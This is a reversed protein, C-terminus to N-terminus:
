SGDSPGKHKITRQKAISLTLPAGAGIQDLGFNLLHADVLYEQADIYNAAIRYGEIKDDPHAMQAMKRLLANAATLQALEDMELLVPQYGAQMMMRSLKRTRKEVASTKLLDDLLDPYFEADECLLSLHLLESKTEIFRMSITLDECTGVAVIKQGKDDKDRNNEIDMLRQILNFCSIYDKVYEDAEVCQREYRRQLMQLENQRTFPVGREQAFFLDDKLAELDSEIKAALSAAQYAKYSIQNFQSNLSPLYSADTIFWRCRICNEPGHPVQAYILKSADRVENLVHGGNWCGGLTSLEDSRVTNGGVLCLGSSRPEWGIPNRNILVAEVSAESNYATRCRIKSLEADKLFDRISSESNGDLAAHAERMKEAMVSPTIKNYYITMLLRSHGALLKSVVPLPLNTDMTYCTILSVRLCHLPFPTKTFRSSSTKDDYDGVLRVRTGDSYTNGAAAINNELKLLLRYWSASILSDYVPMCRDESNRASANRFLFCFEGMAKLLKDGKVNKTHKAELKEASSAGSIPNYKEQWNRLKELWYLIEEHQWPITYGRDLETKNRDATKNTSIYIGTAYGGTMAEYTRRFVGKEYPRKENGYAFEHSNLVWSGGEYRWTDAEGSDLFRVQYTRLPLHLKIFLLLAIVPSWIKYVTVGSGNRQIDRVQWVCDPDNKDILEADIEFWASPINEHAWSWHRFHRGSWPSGQAPECGLDREARAPGYPCLVQRLQQIYRYPLPNRVTELTASIKAIKTFPNEFLPRLFGRSEKISYHKEIVHDIFNIMYGVYDAQTAQSKLGAGQIIEVFEKSTVKHGGRGEFFFVVDNTYPIHRVLYSELFHRLADLKHHIGAEQTKIWEAALRQWDLWDKGYKQAVWSLSLDKTRGDHRKM